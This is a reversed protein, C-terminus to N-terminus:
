GLLLAGLGLSGAFLALAVPLGHGVAGLFAVRDRGWEVGVAFYTSVGLSLALYVASVVNFAAPALPLVAFRAFSEGLMAYMACTLGLVMPAFFVATGRASEVTSRLSERLEAELRKLDRLYAATELLGRSASAPDRATVDVLLRLASRVMRSPHGELMGREGFLIEKLSERRLRVAQAIAAFLDGSPSGALEESAVGFAAEPPLGSGVLTGLRFLADPFDAELRRLERARRTAEATAVLLFAAIGTAPALVVVLGSVPPPLLATVSAAVVAALVALFVARPVRSLGGSPPTSGLGPRRTLIQRALLLTVSPFGVDLLLIMGLPDSAPGSVAGSSLTGISGLTTMPLVTGLLLPLLVGLAFLATAPARLSGAYARLREKTGERVLDRARDCLRGVAEASGLRAAAALDGLARRLDDNWGRWSEGFARFAEELSASERLLVSWLVARLRGAMPEETGEAALRVAETLSPRLRLSLAIYNVVEPAHGLSQVRLRRAMAEPNGLLLAYALAPAAFAALLFPVALAPVLLLAFTLLLLGLAAAVAAAITALAVVERFEVPIGAFRVATHFAPQDLVRRLHDHRRRLTGIKRQLALRDKGAALALRPRLAAEKSELVALARRLRAARRGDSGHIRGASRCARVFWAERVIPVEPLDGAECRQVRSAVPRGM